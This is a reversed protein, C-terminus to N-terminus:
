RGHIEVGRLEVAEDGPQITLVFPGRILANAIISGISGDTGKLRAWYGVKDTLVGDYTGPSIDDGVMFVGDGYVADPGEGPGSVGPVTTSPSDPGGSRAQELEARLAGNERYYTWNRDESQALASRVQSLEARAESLAARDDAAQSRAIFFGVLVGVLLLLLAVAMWIWQGRLKQLPGKRRAAGGM